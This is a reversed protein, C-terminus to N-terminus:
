ITDPDHREWDTRPLLNFLKETIEPEGAVFGLRNEKKYSFSQLDYKKVPVLKGDNLRFFRFVGGTTVLAHYCPVWDWAKQPTQIIAAARGLTVAMLGFHGSGMTYVARVSAAIKPMLRTINGYLETDMGRLVVCQENSKPILRGLTKLTGGELSFAKEKRSFISLGGNAQPATIASAVIKGNKLLGGGVCWEPFGSAFLATGDLPDVVACDGTFIGEPNECSLVRRDNPAEEECLFKIESFKSLIIGQSIKDAMTVISRHGEGEKIEAERPLSKIEEGAYKVAGILTREYSDPDWRSFMEEQVKM